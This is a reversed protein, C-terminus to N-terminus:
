QAVCELMRDVIRATGITVPDKCPLDLEREIQACVEIGAERSMLSTNSAVGAIAVQPNTLRAATLNTDIFDKRSSLSYDPLGRTQQRGVEHCM